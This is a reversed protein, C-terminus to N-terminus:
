EGAYTPTQPFTLYTEPDVRTGNISLEFHIHSEEAVEALATNGASAFIEGKKLVAGEEIGPCLEDALNQYTTVAGGSHEISLSMGMMADDWIKLVTGDAAAAVDAGAPCYLDVGTHTRYDEMTMSFVPEELSAKKQVEGIVPCVFEPVSNEAKEAPPAKIEEKESEKEPTKENEKEGENMFADAHKETQPTDPKKTDETDRFPKGSTVNEGTTEAAEALGVPGEAANKALSFAIAIVVGIMMLIVAVTIYINQKEQKKNKSSNNM